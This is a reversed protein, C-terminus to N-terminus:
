LVHEHPPESCSNQFHLSRWISTGSPPSTIAGSFTFAIGSLTAVSAPSFFISRVEDQMLTLKLLGKEIRLWAEAASQEAEKRRKKLAGEAKRDGFVVSSQFGNKQDKTFYTPPSTQPKRQALENLKAKPTPSVQGVNLGEIERGM